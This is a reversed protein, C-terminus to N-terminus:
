PGAAQPPSRRRGYRGALALVLPLPARAAAVAVIRNRLGTVLERKGKEYAALGEDVVRAAGMKPKLFVTDLQAVGHFETETSGPCLSLLRTGHGQAECALANSVSRLYAKTASYVAFWPVPQFGAASAVNIAGRGPVARLDDWFAHLLGTPAIVNLELMRRWDEWSFQEFAGHRGFGANNVLLDLPPAGGERVAAALRTGAGPQALDLAIVRCRLGPHRAELAAALELMRGERRATLTLRRARPALREAFLRGLGASAGTVLTHDYRPPPLSM